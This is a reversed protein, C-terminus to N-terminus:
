WSGVAQLGRPGVAGSIAIPGGLPGEFSFISDVAATGGDLCTIAVLAVLGAAAVGFGLRAGIAYRRASRASARALKSDIESPGKATEDDFAGTRERELAFLVAGALLGAGAAGGAAWMWTETESSLTARSEILLPGSRKLEHRLDRPVGPDLAFEAQVPDYGSLELGYTHHGPKLHVSLPTVGRVEGDIILTAGPPSTDVDVSPACMRARELRSVFADVRVVDPKVELFREFLVVARDCAGMEDYALGANFLIEPQTELDHARLIEYAELYSRASEDYRGSSFAEAASAIRERAEAKASRVEADGPPAGASAHASAANGQFVCIWGLISRRLRPSMLIRTM